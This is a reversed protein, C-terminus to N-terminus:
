TRRLAVARSVSISTMLPESTALAPCADRRDHLPRPRRLTLLLRQAAIPAATATVRPEPPIPNTRAMSSTSDITVGIAGHRRTSVRGASGFPGNRRGTPGASVTVNSTNPEFPSQVIGLPTVAISTFRVAVPAVAGDVNTVVYGAPSARGTAECSFGDFLRRTAAFLVDIVSDGAPFNSSYLLRPRTSMTM